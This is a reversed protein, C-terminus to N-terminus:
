WLRLFRSKYAGRGGAYGSMDFSWRGVVLLWYGVVLLWHGVVLLWHGIVLLWNLQIPSAM